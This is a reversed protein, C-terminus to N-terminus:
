REEDAAVREFLPRAPQAASDAIRRRDAAQVQTAARREHRRRDTRRQQQCCGGRRRREGTRPGPHVLLDDLPALLDLAEQRAAAGPRADAAHAESWVGVDHAYPLRAARRRDDDGAVRGVRRGVVPHRRGVVREGQLAPRAALLDADVALRALRHQLVGEFPLVRRALLLGGREVNRRQAIAPVDQQGRGDGEGRHRVEDVANGRM